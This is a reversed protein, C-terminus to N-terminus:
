RACLTMPITNPFLNSFINILFPVYESTTIIVPTNNIFPILQSYNPNNSDLGEDSEVVVGGPLLRPPTDIDQIM